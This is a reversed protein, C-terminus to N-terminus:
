AKSREEILRDLAADVRQKRSGSLEERLWVSFCGQSVGVERAVEWLKIGHSVIKARLETNAIM